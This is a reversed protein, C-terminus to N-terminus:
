AVCALVYLHRLTPNSKLAAFVTALGDDMIGTNVLDLTVLTPVNARLLKAIPVMGEAMLPNRKLWLSQVLPDKALDECIIAVDAADFHNGAIYWHTLQSKGSRLYAAIAKAGDKGVINNGLLLAQVESSNAMADLLPGIGKPGVM